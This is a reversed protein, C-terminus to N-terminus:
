EVVSHKNIKKRSSNESSNSSDQSNSFIYSFNTIDQKKDNVFIEFDEPELDTVQNGKKDTVVVDLQILNTSIEV